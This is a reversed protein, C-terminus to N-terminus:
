SLISNTLDKNLSINAIIMVEIRYDINPITPVGTMDCLQQILYPFSPTTTKDFARVYIRMWILAVFYIDYGALLSVVLIFRDCTVIDDSSTQSVRFCVM